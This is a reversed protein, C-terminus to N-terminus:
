DRFYSFTLKLPVFGEGSAKGRSGMPAGGGFGGNHLTAGEGASPRSGGRTIVTPLM